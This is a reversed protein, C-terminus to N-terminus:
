LMKSILYDTFESMKAKGGLDYTMVKGEKFVSALADDIRKAAADEGLHRLML